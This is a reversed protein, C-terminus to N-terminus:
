DNKGQAKNLALLKKEFFSMCVQAPVVDNINKWALHIFDHTLSGGHVGAGCKGYASEVYADATCERVDRVQDSKEKVYEGLVGGVRWSMTDVNKYGLEFAVGETMFDKYANTGCVVQM